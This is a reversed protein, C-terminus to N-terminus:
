HYCVLKIYINCDFSAKRARHLAIVNKADIPVNPVLGSRRNKLGVSSLSELFHKYKKTLMEINLKQRM